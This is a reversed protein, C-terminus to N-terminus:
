GLGLNQRWDNRPVVQLSVTGGQQRATGTGAVAGEVGVGAKRGAELRSDPGQWDLPGNGHLDGNRCLWAVAQRDGVAAAIEISVMGKCRSTKIPSLTPSLFFFDRQPFKFLAAM